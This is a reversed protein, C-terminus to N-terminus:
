QLKRIIRAPNGAVISNSPVDKVVVSGAGIIVNDGIKINGIIVSNSGIEVNNGITAAKTISGDLLIKSGITISNRVLCNDGIIATANIVLSQGHFIKFNIGIQSNLNIEIGIFWEVLIRYLFIVPFLIIRVIRKRNLVSFLRFLVMVIRGKSSFRNAKWDQFIYM